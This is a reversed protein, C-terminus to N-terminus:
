PVRRSAPRGSSRSIGTNVLGRGGCAAVSPPRLGWFHCVRRSADTQAPTVMDSMTDATKYSQQDRSKAARSSM